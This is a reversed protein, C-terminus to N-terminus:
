PAFSTVAECYSVRSKGKSIPESVTAFVEVVGTRDINLLEPVFFIATADNSGGLGLFTQTVTQSWSDPGPAAAVVPAVVEVTVTPSFWQGPYSPSRAVTVPFAAGAAVTDAVLVECGVAVPAKAAASLSIPVAMCLSLTVIRIRM